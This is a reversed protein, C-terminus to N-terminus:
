QQLIRRKHPQRLVCGKDHVIQDPDLSDVSGFELGLADRPRHCPVRRGTRRRHPAAFCPTVGLVIAACVMVVCASAGGMSHAALIGLAPTTALRSVVLGLHSKGECHVDCDVGRVHRVLELGLILPVRLCPLTHM